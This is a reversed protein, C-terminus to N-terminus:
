GPSRGRQADDTAALGTLLQKAVDRVKVHSRQSEDRLTEFAADATIGRMAMLAGKAQDIEARSTLATRLQDSTTRAEVYRGANGIAASAAATFLRLLAEDFPDFADPSRGYLNLAGIHEGDVDLVLPASLYSRVGAQDAAEAFVPWRERAGDVSVRVPVRRLAADLCPGEGAAYQCADIELIVEDTAAATRAQGKAIVTVSVMDADEVVRAVQKALRALVDDLPEERALVANLEDLAAVTEDLRRVAQPNAGDDM